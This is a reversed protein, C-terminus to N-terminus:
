ELGPYKNADFGLRMIVGVIDRMDIESFSASLCQDKTHLDADTDPDEDLMAKHRGSPASTEVGAEQDDGYYYEWQIDKYPAYDEDDIYYESVERIYRHNFFIDRDIETFPIDNELCYSEVEALAMDADEPWYDPEKWMRQMTVTLNYSHHLRDGEPTPGMKRACFAMYVIIDDDYHLTREQEVMNADSGMFSEGAFADAAPELINGVFAEAKDSGVTVTEHYREGIESM